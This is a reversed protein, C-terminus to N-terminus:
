AVHEAGAQPQNCWEASKKKIKINHKVPTVVKRHRGKIM